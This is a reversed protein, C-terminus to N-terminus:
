LKLIIFKKQMYNHFVNNTRKNDRFINFNKILHCLDINKKINKFCITHGSVIYHKLDKFLKNPQLM